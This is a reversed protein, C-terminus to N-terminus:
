FACKQDGQLLLVTKFPYYMYSQLWHTEPLVNPHLFGGPSLPFFRGRGLSDRSDGATVNLRELCKGIEVDEPGHDDKRCYKGTDDALGITTLRVLAEKSLVYGAGGSMYGKKVFKGFKCGFYWPDSSNYQKLMYRLNEMIIYTDDDAKM